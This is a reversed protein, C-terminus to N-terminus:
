GDKEEIEKIIEDLVTKIHKNIDDVKYKTLSSYSYDDLEIEYGNATIGYACGNDYYSLTTINKTNIYTDKIWM